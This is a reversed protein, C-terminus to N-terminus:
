NAKGPTRDHSYGYRKGQYIIMGEAFPVWVEIESTDIDRLILSQGGSMIVTYNFDEPPYATTFAQM